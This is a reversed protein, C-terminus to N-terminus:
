TEIVGKIGEISILMGQHVAESFIEPDIETIWTLNCSIEDIPLIKMTALHHNIPTRTKIASYQLIMNEHDNILIKEKITGMGEMEFFRCDGEVNIEKVSPVWDCRSVDSLINWLSDASCNLVVEEKLVKM